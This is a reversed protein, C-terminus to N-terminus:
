LSTNSFCRHVSPVLCPVSQRDDGGRCEDASQREPQRCDQLLLRPAAAQRRQPHNTTRPHLRSLPEVHRHQGARERPSCDQPHWDRAHRHKILPGLFRTQSPAGPCGESPRHREVGTWPAAPSGGGSPALDDFRVPEATRAAVSYWLRDTHWGDPTRQRALVGDVAVRSACAGLRTGVPPAQDRSPACRSRLLSRRRGDAPSM